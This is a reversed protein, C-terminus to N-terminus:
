KLEILPLEASEDDLVKQMTAVTMETALLNHVPIFEPKRGEMQIQLFLNDNTTVPEGLPLQILPSLPNLSNANIILFEEPNQILLLNNDTD